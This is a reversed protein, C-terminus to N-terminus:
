GSLQEFGPVFEYRKRYFESGKGPQSLEPMGFPTSHPTKKIPAIAAPRKSWLRHSLRRRM